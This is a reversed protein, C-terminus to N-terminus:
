MAVFVCGSKVKRSDYAIDNIEIDLNGQILEYDVDRLLERLKM